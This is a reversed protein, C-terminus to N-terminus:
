VKSFTMRWTGAEKAPHGRQSLRQTMSRVRGDNPCRLQRYSVIGM